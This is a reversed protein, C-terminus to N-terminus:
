QDICFYIHVHEDIRPKVAQKLYFTTYENDM